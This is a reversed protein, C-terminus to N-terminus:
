HFVDLVGERRHTHYEGEFKLEKEPQCKPHIVGRIVFDDGLPSLWEVGRVVALTEITGYPKELFWCWDLSELLSRDGHYLLRLSLGLKCLFDPKSSISRFLDERPGGSYINFRVKRITM